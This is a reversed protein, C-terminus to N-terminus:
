GGLLAPNDGACASALRDMLLDYDDSTRGRYSDDMRGWEDWPLMEIKSLSALDRIANGRIEGIGWAFDIGAVGFLNPDISGARYRTWAAGGTLFQDAALDAADDVVNTPMPASASATGTVSSM